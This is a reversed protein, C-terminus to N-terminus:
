LIVCESSCTCTCCLCKCSCCEADSSSASSGTSVVKSRTGAHTQSYNVSKNVEHHKSEEQLQWGKPRFETRVAEDRPRRADEPLYETPVGDDHIVTPSAPNIPPM